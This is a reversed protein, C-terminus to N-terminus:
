QHYFFNQGLGFNLGVTSTSDMNIYGLGALAFLNLNMVTQKSVSIKGYYAIFQYNAFLGWVPHPAKSADMPPFGNPGSNGAKLQEGYDSLGDMWFLGQVNVASTESYNYTAQGSFMYDNYYPENMEIGGGLGFEFKNETIVSRNLVARQKDFVPLTSERALEEEPFEIEDAFVPICVAVSM